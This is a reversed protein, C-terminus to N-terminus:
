PLQVKAIAAMVENADRCPGVLAPSPEIREAWMMEDEGVHISWHNGTSRKREVRWREIEVGWMWGCAFICCVFWAVVFWM